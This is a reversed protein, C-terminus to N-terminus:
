RALEYRAETIRAKWFAFRGEPLIWETEAELPVLMGDVRAYNRFYGVFPTPVGTGGVDRYRMMEVRRILDDDGFHTTLTVTIGSDTLSARATSDDVAEWRVGQTPLLATPFWVREALQRHLASAALEVGGEEDAVPILAALKGLMAASGGFYHDRVRVSTLPAMRIRADWVFGAPVATFHQVSEFPSWAADPGTRFEGEHTIRATRVMPQGPSLARRFYRAAPAPLGELEAPDYAAPGYGAPAAALRRVLRDTARNWLVGGTLVVVAGGGLLAGALIAAGKLWGSM